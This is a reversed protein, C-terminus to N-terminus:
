GGRLGDEFDDPIEGFRGLVEASELEGTDDDAVIKLAAVGPVRAAMAEAKKLAGYESAAVERQGPVLRKRKIEFTQVVYTTKNAM